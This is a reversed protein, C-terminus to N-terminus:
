GAPQLRPRPEGARRWLNHSVKLNAKVEARNVAAILDTALARAQSPTLIVAAASGLTISIREQGDETTTLAVHVMQESM